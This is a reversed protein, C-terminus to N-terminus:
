YINPIYNNLAYLQNSYKDMHSNFMVKRIFLAGYSLANNLIESGVKNGIIKSKSTLIIKKWIKMAKKCTIDTIKIHKNIMLYLNYINKVEQINYTSYELPHSEPHIINNTINFNYLPYKSLLINNELLKIEKLADKTNMGLFINTQPFKISKENLFYDFGRIFNSPSASLRGWDVYTLPTSYLNINIGKKKGNKIYKKNNKINKIYILKKNKLIYKKNNITYIYYIEKINKSNIKYLREYSIKYKNNLGIYKHKEIITNINNKELSKIWSNKIINLPEINNIRFNNIFDKKSKIIKSIIAIFFSNDSDYQYNQFKYANLYSNFTKNKSIIDNNKVTFYTKKLNNNKEIFFLNMHSRDIAMWQSQNTITNIDFPGGNFKYFKIPMYKGRYEDSNCQIWSKNDKNFENYIINYNYLPSCYPSLLVYKKFIDGYKIFAYQMMLLTADSLSRTGWKTKIWNNKNVVSINNGLKKLYLPIRFTKIDIPHIVIYLSNNVSNLFDKYHNNDPVGGLFMFLINNQKM